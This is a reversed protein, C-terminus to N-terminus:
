CTTKIKSNPDNSLAPVRAQLVALTDPPTAMPPIVIDHAKLLRRFKLLTRHMATRSSGFLVALPEAALAVRLHLVAALVQESFDLRPPRGHKVDGDSSLTETLDDLQQRTM